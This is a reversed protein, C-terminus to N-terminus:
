FGMFNELLVHLWRLGSQSIFTFVESGAVSEDKINLKITLHSPDTTRSRHNLKNRSCVCLFGAAGFWRCKRRCVSNFAAAGTYSSIFGSPYARLRRNWCYSM